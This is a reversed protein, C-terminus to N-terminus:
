RVTEAPTQFQDRRVEEVVLSAVRSEAFALPDEHLEWRFGAEMAAVAFTASAGMVSGEGGLASQASAVARLYSPGGNAPWRTQLLRLAEDVTQVTLWEGEIEVAILKDFHVDM